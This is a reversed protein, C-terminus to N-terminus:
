PTLPPSSGDGSSQMGDDADCIRDLTAVDERRALSVIV